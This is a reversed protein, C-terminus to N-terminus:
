YFGYNYYGKIMCISEQRDGRGFLFLGFPKLYIEPSPQPSPGKNGTGEGWGEGMIFKLGKIMEVWPLPSRRSLVQKIMM